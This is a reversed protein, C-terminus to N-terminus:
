SSLIEHVKAVIEEAKVDSKIMYYAPNDEAVGTLIKGEPEVNTLIIIPVSKGWEDRRLNEMVAMGDMGPMVIDLLILDPHHELATKLGEEGNTATLIEFGDNALREALFTLIQKEDEVILIKKKSNDM